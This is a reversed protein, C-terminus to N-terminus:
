LATHGDASCVKHGSNADSVSAIRLANSTYAHASNHGSSTHLLQSMTLQQQSCVHRSAIIYAISAFSAINFTGLLSCSEVLKAAKAATAGAKGVAPKIGTAQTSSPTDFGVGAAKHATAAAAAVADKTADTTHGAKYKGANITYDTPGHVAEGTGPV